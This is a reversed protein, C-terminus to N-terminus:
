KGEQKQLPKGKPWPPANAAADASPLEEERESKMEGKGANYILVQSRREGRAPRRRFPGIHPLIRRSTRVSLCVSLVLCVCPLCIRGRAAQASFFATHWIRSKGEKAWKKLAAPFDIHSPLLAFSPGISVSTRAGPAPNVAGLFLGSQGTRRIHLPRVHFLRM